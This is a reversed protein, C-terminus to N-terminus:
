IKLDGWSGQRRKLLRDLQTRKLVMLQWSQISNVQM